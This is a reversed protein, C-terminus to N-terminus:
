QVNNPFDDRGVHVANSIREDVVRRVAAETAAPDTSGRADIAYYNTPGSKPQGQQPAFEPAGRSTQALISPVYGQSEEPMASLWNDGHLAVAKQVTGAGANYAALAKQVDGDFAKLMAALYEKGFRLYEGESDDQLPQIGYGPNRGTGPMIQTIGLAGASSRLLSGDENRHRGGSEQNILAAFLADERDRISNIAGKFAKSEPTEEPDTIANGPFYYDTDPVDGNVSGEGIPGAPTFRPDDEGILGGLLGEKHYNWASRTATVARSREEEDAYFAALGLAAIIPANGAAAVMMAAGKKGAQIAVLTGVGAATVKLYPVAEKLFEEIESRNELSWGTIGEVVRTMGPLLETALSNKFGTISESLETTAAVYAESNALLEDTPLGGLEGARQFSQQMGQRDSLLRLAKDGVGLSEAIQRRQDRGMASLGQSLFDITQEESMGESEIRQPNFGAATFARESLEGWQASDRLSNALEVLGRADSDSGGVQRMAYGLKAAYQATVGAQRSWKALEDGSKAVNASVKVAGAFAGAIAGGTVLATTRLNTFQNNAEKFGKADTELGLRVLLEDIPQSM